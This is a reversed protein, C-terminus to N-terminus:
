NNNEPEIMHKQKNHLFVFGILVYAPLVFATITFVFFFQSHHPENVITLLVLLYDLVSIAFAPYYVIKKPHYNTYVFYGSGVSIIELSMLCLLILRIFLYSNLPWRDTNLLVYTVFVQLPVAIILPAIVFFLRYTLM